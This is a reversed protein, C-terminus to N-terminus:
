KRQRAREAVLEAVISIAIEEPTEAEIQLGIPCHVSDLRKRSVGQSVLAEYIKDRKRKSGMMGIYGAQTKLAQELVARDTQHGRTLLVIFSDSDIELGELARSFTNIVFIQSADPFREANAFEARDDVIMVRFGALAAMHATPLAVHGSGFCYMTKVRCVPDIIATIGDLPAVTISSASQLESKLLEFHRESWEFTGLIEGNRPLMSHGVVDVQGGGEKLLTLFYFDEGKVITDLLSRFLKINDDTPPIFDLLVNAKGGCISASALASDGLMEFDLLRSNLTSSAAKSEKITTAELTGGGISGYSKGGAAIVMKTGSHRPSSGKSGIISALVVASGSDLQECIIRALYENENM